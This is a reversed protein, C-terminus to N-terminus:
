TAGQERRLLKAKRWYGWRYGGLSGDARIVRHCPILIAIRNLGMRPEAFVSYSEREANRFACINVDVEGSAVMEQCRKWPGVYGLDM